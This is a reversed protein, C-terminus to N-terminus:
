RAGVLRKDAHVDPTYVVTRAMMASKCFICKAGYPNSETMDFPSTRYQSGHCRPCTFHMSTTTM